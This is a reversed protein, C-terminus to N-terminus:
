KDPPREPLYHRTLPRTAPGNLVAGEADFRSGHCPCDWSEEATNFSLQCGLHTCIASVCHLKGRADRSVGIRQGQHRVIRAEGPQLTRLDLSETGRLRDSVLHLPFELNDALYSTLRSLPKLRSPSYLEAYPNPQKLCL